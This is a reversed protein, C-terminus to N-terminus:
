ACGGGFFARVADAVTDVAEAPLHPHLPLSLIRPQISETVTMAGRRIRDGYAPQLHVPQPYHIAASVGRSQLFALLADREDTQVVYLHYAHAADPMVAPTELPLGALLADYRSALVRRRDIEEDLRRLKVSLIAAQLEDLRSCVGPRVSHQPRDWGYQRVLELKSALSDNSTVVMGGDGIAGLNKTPYFSFCGANGIGGVRQGRIAAGHAQACDEILALGHVGALTQLAAMDAPHGYLHVALIARTRISILSEAAAPDLTYTRADIDALVPTAGVAEIAAVTAVATHSATIVEDGPGIEMARLALCIADTGSAVGIGHAAGTWAAFRREFDRTKEGLIYWGSCLVAKIAADIEAEYARYSAGPDGTLITTQTATMFQTEFGAAPRSGRRGTENGLSDGNAPFGGKARESGPETQGRCSEAAAPRNRGCTCM